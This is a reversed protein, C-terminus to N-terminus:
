GINVGSLERAITGIIPYKVGNGNSCGGNFDDEDLAWVFAGGYGETKLWTM